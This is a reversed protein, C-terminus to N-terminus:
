LNNNKLMYNTARQSVEVSTGVVDSNNVGGDEGYSGHKFSASWVMAIADRLPLKVNYDSFFFCSKEVTSIPLWFGLAYMTRVDLIRIADSKMNGLAALLADADSHGLCTFGRNKHAVTTNIHHLPTNELPDPFLKTQFTPLGVKLDYQQVRRQYDLWSSPFLEYIPVHVENITKEVKKSHANLTDLHIGKKPHYAAYGETFGGMPIRKGYSINVGSVIVERSQTQRISKGEKWTNVAMPYDLNGNSVYLQPDVIFVCIVEDDRTCVMAVKADETLDYMFDVNDESIQAYKKNLKAPTGVISKKVVILACQELLPTTLWPENNGESIKSCRPDGAAMDQLKIPPYVQIDSSNYLGGRQMTCLQTPLYTQLIYM